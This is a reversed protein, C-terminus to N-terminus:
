GHTIRGAREIGFWEWFPKLDEEKRSEGVYLVEPGKPGELSSIIHWYKHGKGVAIEDIGLVTIM